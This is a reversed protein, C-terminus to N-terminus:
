NYGYYKLGVSSGTFVLAGDNDISLTLGTSVNTTKKAAALKTDIEDDVEELSLGGTAPIKECMGVAYGNSVGTMFLIDAYADDETNTATGNVDVYLYTENPDPIAINAYYLLDGLSKFQCIRGEKAPTLAIIPNDGAVYASTRDVVVKLKNRYIQKVANAYSITPPCFSRPFLYDGPMIPPPDLSVIEKQYVGFFTQSNVVRDVQEEMTPARGGGQNGNWWDEIAALTSRKLKRNM